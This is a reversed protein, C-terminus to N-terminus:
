FDEFLRIAVEVGYNVIHRPLGRRPKSGIRPCCFDQLKGMPNSARHTLKMGNCLPIPRCKRM